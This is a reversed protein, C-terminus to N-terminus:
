ISKCIVYLTVITYFNFGEMILIERMGKRSWSFKGGTGEKSSFVANSQIGLM